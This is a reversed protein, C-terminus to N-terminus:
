PTRSLVKEVPELSKRRRAADAVSMTQAPRLRKLYPKMGSLIRSRREAYDPSGTSLGSKVDKGLDAFRYAGDILGCVALLDCADTSKCNKGLATIRAYAGAGFQADFASGRENEEKAFLSKNEASDGIAIMRRTKLLNFLRIDDASPSSDAALGPAALLLILAAHKMM